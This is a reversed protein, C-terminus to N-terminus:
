SCMHRKCSINSIQFIKWNDISHLGILYKSYLEWFLITSCVLSFWVFLLFQDAPVLTNRNCIQKNLFLKFFWEWNRLSNWGCFEVIFVWSNEPCHWSATNWVFGYRICLGYPVLRSASSWLPHSHLGAARGCLVWPIMHLSWQEVQAQPVTKSLKM